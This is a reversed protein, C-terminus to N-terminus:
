NPKEAARNKSAGFLLFVALAILHQPDEFTWAPFLDAIPTALGVVLQVIEMLLLILLLIPLLVLLGGLATLKVFSAINKM